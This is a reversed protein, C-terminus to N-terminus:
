EVVSPPLELFAESASGGGCVCECGSCALVNAEGGCAGACISDPFDSSGDCEEDNNLRGDGCSGQDFCGCTLEACGRCVFSQVNAESGCEDTCDDFSGDCVEDRDLVGNGCTEPTEPVLDTVPVGVCGSTDLRCGSTCRLTGEGLFLSGCTELITKGDCQEGGEVVENGCVPQPQDAASGCIGCEQVRPDCGNADV